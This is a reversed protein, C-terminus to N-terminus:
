DLKAAALHVEEKDESYRHCKGVKRMKQMQQKEEQSYDGREQINWSLSFCEAQPQM